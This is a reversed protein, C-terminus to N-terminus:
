SELVAGRREGWGMKTNTITKIFLGCLGAYNDMYARPDPAGVSTYDVEWPGYRYCFGVTGGESAVDGTLKEPSPLSERM